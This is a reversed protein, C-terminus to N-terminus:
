VSHKEETTFLGRGLRIMTSGFQVAQYYDNSMGMSLELTASPNHLHVVKILRRMESYITESIKSFFHPAMTMIGQIKISDLAFLASLNQELELSSFGNKDGTSNIQLLVAQCIGQLRAEKNILEALELSHVSQILHFKGVAKKIKNKQLPGLLHWEVPEVLFSQLRAMRELAPLVYNEGLIRQGSKYAELVQEDTAYKSVAVLKVRGASIAGGLELDIKNIKETFSMLILAREM